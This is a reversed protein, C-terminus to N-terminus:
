AAAKLEVATKRAKNCESLIRNSARYVVVAARFDERTATSRILEYGGTADVQLILQHETPYWGSEVSLEEYGALQGHHKAPIWGSTKADVLCLSGAYEGAGLTCRLDPTGAVQLEHSCVVFESALPEPENEHWFGMVGRAYGKEEETMRSFDPVSKGTALAHLAHKHVNTGVRAKDDRKDSFLLRAEELASWIGDGTELWSLANRMDDPDDLSLGDAALVAIGEGNLRAAWNLLRDPNFDLPKVVTTVGSYRASQIGTWKGAKSQIQGYYAHDQARFFVETGNPLEYRDFPGFPRPLM